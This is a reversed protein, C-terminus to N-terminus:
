RLANFPNCQSGNIAAGWLPAARCTGVICDRKLSKTLANRGSTGSAMHGPQPPPECSVGADIALVGGAVVGAGVPM